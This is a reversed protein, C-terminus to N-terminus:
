EQEINSFSSTEQCIFFFESIDFKMSIQRTLALGNHASLRVCIVFCITAKQLKAFM